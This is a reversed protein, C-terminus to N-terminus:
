YNTNVNAQKKELEGRRHEPTQIKKIEKKNKNSGFIKFM